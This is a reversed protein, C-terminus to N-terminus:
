LDFVPSSSSSEHVCSINVCYECDCIKRKKGNEIVFIRRGNTVLIKGDSDIDFDAAGSFIVEDKGKVLKWSIPIFGFDKDKKRSNRKIERDVNIKNGDIYVQKEDKDRKRTPNNGGSGGSVATKGTFAIIFLHIFSAIAQLFRIPLMIIEVIPNGRREKLPTKIAYVDGNYVVPKVFSYNKDELVTSIEMTELNLLCVSSPSFGAFNGNADRGVGRSSFYILDCNEPSIFPYEDMTDGYTLTKYDNTELDFLAIDANNASSQVSCALAGNKSDCFVGSFTLEVSNIVHSENDKELTFDKIYIGSTENISFSYAAKGEGVICAGSLTGAPTADASENVLEGRFAASSGTQKWRKSRKISEINENYSKFFGSDQKTIKGDSYLCVKDGDTFVFKM